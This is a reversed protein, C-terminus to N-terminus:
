DKGRMAEGAAGSAAQDREMTEDIARNIFGNVSERRAEAHARIIEKKGKPTTLNIRDVNEKQWHNKYETKGAM